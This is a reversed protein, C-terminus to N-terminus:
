VIIKLNLCIVEQTSTLNNMKKQKYVKNLKATDINQKKLRKDTLKLIIISNDKSQNTLNGVKVQSIIQNIQPRIFCFQDM